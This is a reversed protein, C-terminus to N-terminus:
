WVVRNCLTSFLRECQLELSFEFSYAHMTAHLFTCHKFVYRTLTEIFATPPINEGPLDKCLEEPLEKRLVDWMKIAINDPRCIFRLFLHMFLACAASEHPQM